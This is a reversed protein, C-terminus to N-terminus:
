SRFGLTTQRLNLQMRLATERGRYYGPVWGSEEFGLARYFLRADRNAARMEVRIIAIGATLASAKLWEFLSRGVGKRQWGSRVALLSLHSFESGFSMIAFGVMVRRVRGILVVSEPDNIERAVRAATWSWGLGTEIVDRSLEAIALAATTTALEFSVTPTTM